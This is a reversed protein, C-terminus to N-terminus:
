PIPCGNVGVNLRQNVDFCSSGAIDNVGSVTAGCPFQGTTQDWLKQDTLIGNEYRYVINAGIDAGNKGAGKMPNGSPIYVICGQGTSPNYFNTTIATSQHNTFSGNADSYAPSYNSSSGVANIYDVAWGGGMATKIYGGTSSAGSLLLNTGTLSANANTGANFDYYNAAQFAITGGISTLNTWIDNQAGHVEFGQVSNLSVDNEHVNGTAVRISYRTAETFGLSNSNMAISGLIKTNDSGDDISIGWHNNESISNETIGYHDQYHSLGEDGTTPDGSAYTPSCTGLDPYNRSNAYDRRFTVRTSGGYSQFGHRHFYYAESEEVLVDSSGATVTFVHDNACRNPKAGLCRRVNVNHVNTFLFVHYQGGALNDANEGRLGEV